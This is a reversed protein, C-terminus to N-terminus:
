KALHDLASLLVHEQDTIKQFILNEEMKFQFFRNSYNKYVVYVGTDTIKFECFHAGNTLKLKTPDVIPNMNDDTIRIWRIYAGYSLEDMEEVYRYEKLKKLIDLLTERSFGLEKLIEVKMDLIKKNTLDMLHSNDENDLAKLLKDVDM